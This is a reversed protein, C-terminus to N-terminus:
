KILQKDGLTTPLNIIDGPQIANATAGARNKITAALTDYLPMSARSPAIGYRAQAIKSISDGSKVTYPTTNAATAAATEAGMVNLKEAEMDGILKRASVSVVIRLNQMVTTDNQCATKLANGGDTLKGSDKTMIINIADINGGNTGAFIPGNANANGAVLCGIAGITTANGNLYSAIAKGLPGDNGENTLKAFSANAAALSNPTSKLLNTVSASLARGAAMFAKYPANETNQDFSSVAQASGPNMGIRTGVDLLEKQTLPGKGSALPSAVAVERLSRYAEERIIRRLTSEKILM